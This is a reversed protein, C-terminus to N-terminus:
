VQSTATAPRLIQAIADALELADTPALSAICIRIAPESQLRFRQGATVAWGRDLLLSVTEAEDAVPVWVNLGSRGHADIGRAGLAEVLADRRQAYSRSAKRLRAAMGRQGLLAVVLQQLVHSVWRMGVITGGEVRAVTTADGTLVAVRLDPGLSKSVSRVVAWRARGADCLTHADAGAIPGAHDDELM